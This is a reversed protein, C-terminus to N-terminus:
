LESPPASTMVLSVGVTGAIALTGLAIWTPGFGVIAALALHIGVAIITVAFSAAARMTRDGLSTTFTVLRARTGDLQM